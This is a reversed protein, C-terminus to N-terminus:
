AKRVFETYASSVWYGSKAKLWKTSGVYEEAVITIVTGKPIVMVISNHVGPGKRGNLESATIRVLYNEFGTDGKIYAQIKPLFNAKYASITNGGFFKKGPCTKTSKGAIYNGLYVGKATFWAHYRITSESPTINFKKCLEGYLAIIADAQEQNMKDKDFDGYIEVCIAGTNWGTIGVPLSNLSRGTVIHGNPFITFHQAIDAWGNTKVHYNKMNNQRRLADDTAWNSYAPAYTHHVQLKNITRTVKQSALWTKFETINEFEIFGYKTKM